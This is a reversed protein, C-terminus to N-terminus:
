TFKVVFIKRISTKGNWIKKFLYIKRFFKKWYTFKERLFFRTPAVQPFIKQRLYMKCLFKKGKTCNGCFIKQGPLFNHGFFDLVYNKQSFKKSYINKQLFNKWAWIKEYFFKELLHIVLVNALPLMQQSYAVNTQKKLHKNEWPM